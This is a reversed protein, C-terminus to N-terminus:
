SRTHHSYVTEIANQLGKYENSNLEFGQDNLTAVVEGLPDRVEYGNSVTVVWLSDRRADVKQRLEKGLNRMDVKGIVSYGAM